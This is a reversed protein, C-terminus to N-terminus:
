SAHGNDPHPPVYVGELVRVARCGRCLTEGAAVRDRFAGTSGESGWNASAHEGRQAALADDQENICTWSRSRNGHIIRCGREAIDQAFHELREAQTETLPSVSLSM